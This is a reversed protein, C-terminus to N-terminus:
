MNEVIFLQKLYNVQIITYHLVICKTKKKYEISKNKIWDKM